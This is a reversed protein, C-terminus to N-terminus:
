TSTASCSAPTPGSSGPTSTTSASTSATRRSGRPRRVRLLGRGAADRLGAPHARRQDRRRQYDLGARHDTGDLDGDLYYGSVWGGWLGGVPAVAPGVGVAVPAAVVPASYVPTIPVIPAIPAAGCQGTSCGGGYGAGAHGGHYVPGGYLPGHAPAAHVPVSHSATHVGSPRGPRLIAGTPGLVSGDPGFTSGPPIAEGGRNAGGNLGPGNMTPANLGPGNFSPNSLTGDLPRGTPDLPVPAPAPNVGGAAGGGANPPTGGDLHVPNGAGDVLRGDPTLYSGHPVPTGAPAAIVPPAPAANGGIM